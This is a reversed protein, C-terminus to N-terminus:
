PKARGVLHAVAFQDFGVSVIRETAPDLGKLIAARGPARPSFERATLRRSDSTVEFLQGRKSILISKGAKFAVCPALLPCYLTGNTTVYQPETGHFGLAAAANLAHEIPEVENSFANRAVASVNAPVGEFSAWLGSEKVVARALEAGTSRDYLQLLYHFRSPSLLLCRQSGWDEMRSIKYTVSGSKLAAFLRQEEPPKAPDPTNQWIAGYTAVFDEFVEQESQPYPHPTYLHSGPKAALLEKRFSDQQPWYTPGCENPTWAYVPAALATLLMGLSVLKKM